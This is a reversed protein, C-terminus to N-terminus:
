TRDELNQVKQLLLIFFTSFVDLVLYDPFQKMKTSDEDYDGRTVAIVAATSDEVYQQIEEFFKDNYQDAASYIDLNNDIDERTDILDNGIKISRVWHGFQRINTSKGLKEIYEVRKREDANQGLAKDVMSSITNVWKYGSELYEAISPVGVEFSLTENVVVSRPQGRLFQEQYLRLTELNVKQGRQKAMHSRQRDTFALDDTILCGGLKLVAEETIYSGLKENLKVRSYKFGQPWVTYALAYILIPLDLCKIVQHYTRENEILNSDYIHDIVFDALIGAFIASNNGFILGHTARGLNAKEETLRRELEVLETDSPAKISVWIGTHYLPVTFTTGMGLAQRMRMMAAEGTLKAGDGSMWNRTTPGLKGMESNLEQVWFSGPRYTIESYWSQYPITFMSQQFSNLFARGSESKRFDENPMSNLKDVTENYTENAISIPGAVPTKGKEAAVFIPRTQEGHRVPETAPATDVPTDATPAAATPTEPVDQPAPTAVGNNQVHEHSM